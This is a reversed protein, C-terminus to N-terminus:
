PQTEGNGDQDRNLRLIIHGERYMLLEVWLNFYPGNVYNGSKDYLSVAVSGIAPAKKVMRKRSELSYNFLDPTLRDELNQQSTAVASTDKKKGKKFDRIEKVSMCPKIKKRQEDDLPLMECLQSYSYDKWKDDLCLKRFGNDVATFHYYVSICRSLASKDLGLKCEAFEELTQYGFDRYYLYRRFESLHFGLQIYLNKIDKIDQLICGLSLCADDKPKDIKSGRCIFDRVNFDVKIDDM